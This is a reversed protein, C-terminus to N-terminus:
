GSSEDSEDQVPDDPGRLRNLWRLSPRFSRLYKIKSFYSAFKDVLFMELKKDLESEILRVTRKIAASIAKSTSAGHCIISLGKVGLLPEGGYAQYDFHREIDRWLQERESRVIRSLLLPMGEAFKLLANGVFGNTVVVDAAGAPIDRGEIFGVFNFGSEKLLDYAEIATRDGVTSEHAVNLVGIRPEAIGLMERVYLHGMAAFQVLHHPSAALSAGVDLLYCQGTETPLFSGVAPRTIGHCKELEALSALVQAGTSGASVVADFRGSHHLRLATRIASNPDKGLALPDAERKEPDDLHDSDVSVDMVDLSRPMPDPLFEDLVTRNGLLTIRLGDVDTEELANVAGEVTAEPANDGGFADLAIRILIGTTQRDTARQLFWM